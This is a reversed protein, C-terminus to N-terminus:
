RVTVQKTRSHAGQQSGYVRLKISRDGRKSFRIKHPGPTYFKSVRNNSGREITWDWSDFQGTSTDTLTIWQDRRPTTDSITFQAKPKTTLTDNDGSRRVLPATPDIEVFDVTVFRIDADWQTAQEVHVDLPIIRADDLLLTADYGSNLIVPQIRGDSPFMIRRLDDYQGLTDTKVTLSGRRAERTDAVYMPYQRGMIAMESGRAPYRVDFDYVCCSVWLGLEVTSRVVVAGRPMLVPALAMDLDRNFHVINSSVVGRDLPYDGLAWDYESPGVASSPVVFFVTPRMPVEYDRFTHTTATAEWGVRHAVASWLARRDPLERDYQPVGMDDDGLYRYELRMVDYRTGITLGNLTVEVFLTELEDTTVDITVAM